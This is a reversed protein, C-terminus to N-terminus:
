RTQVPQVPPYSIDDPRFDVAGYYKFCAGLVIRLHVIKQHRLRLGARPMM